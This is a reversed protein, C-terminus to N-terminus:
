PADVVINRVFVGGVQASSAHGDAYLWNATKGGGHRWRVAHAGPISNSPPDINPGVDIPEDLVGQESWYGFKLSTFFANYDVTGASTTAKPFLTFKSSGFNPATEDAVQGADAFMFVDSQRSVDALAYPQPSVGFPPDNMPDSGRAGDPILAPHSGYHHTGANPFAAAACRYIDLFQQDSYSNGSQVVYSSLLTPWDTGLSPDSVAFQGLPLVGNDVEYGFAAIGIQRFNSLCQATHAADRASSLAPLLIGILLAIISIVVLLEILTFAPTHRTRSQM